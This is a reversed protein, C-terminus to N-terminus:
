KSWLMTRIRPWSTYSANCALARYQLTPLEHRLATRRASKARVFHANTSRARGATSTNLLRATTAHRGRPRACVARKRTVTVCPAPQVCPEQATTAPRGKALTFPPAVTPADMLGTANGRSTTSTTRSAAVFCGAQMRCVTLRRPSGTGPTAQGRAGVPVRM